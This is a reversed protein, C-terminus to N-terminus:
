LAYRQILKQQTQPTLGSMMPTWQDALMQRYAMLIKGFYGNLEPSIKQFAAM